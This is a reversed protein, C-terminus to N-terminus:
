SRAQLDEMVYGDQAEEQAWNKRSRRKIVRVVTRAGTEDAGIAVPQKDVCDERMQQEVEADRM